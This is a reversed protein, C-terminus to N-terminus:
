EPLSTGPTDLELHLQVGSRSDPYETMDLGIVWRVEGDFAVVPLWDRLYRPVKRNVFWDQLKIERKREGRTRDGDQRTRLVLEGDTEAHGRVRWGNSLPVDVDGELKVVTGPELLPVWSLRRLDDELTASQGIALRDYDVYGIVDDALEIIKGPQGDVAATRLAESREQSIRADAGLISDIVRYLIRRQIATHIQRFQQREIMLVGSRNAVVDDFLEDVTDAIFRADDHLLSTTRGISARVAPEIAELHPVVTHRIANRRYALSENSEDEVPEIGAEAAYAEVQERTVNLLPRFIALRRLAPRGPNLSIPRRSIESMGSVGELGTGSILRLLVTEVQDDLTHGTVITDTDNDIAASALAAYRAHRAASEVGQGLVQDWADVNVQVVQCSLDWADCIAQVRSADSASAPRLGHDVHIAHIVPGEESAIHLLAHALVQSDVGGSLAIILPRQRPHRLHELSERVQEVIEAVAGSMTIRGRGEM